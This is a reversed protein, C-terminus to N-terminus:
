KAIIGKEERNIRKIDKSNTNRIKYKNLNKNGFNYQVTLQIKPYNWNKHFDVALGSSNYHGIAQNTNFIDNCSLSIKWNKINKSIYADIWWQKSMEYVGFFLPSYYTFKLNFYWKSLLSLREEHQIYFAYFTKDYNKNNFYGRDFQKQLAFYNIGIWQTSKNLYPIPLVILGRIYKSTELNISKIQLNDDKFNIIEVIPNKKSSYSLEFIAARLFSYTLSSFHEKSMKLLPNGIRYTNGGTISKFPILDRFNQHIYNNKYIFKILHKKNIQKSLTVFPQVFYMLTDLKYNDFEIKRKEANLRIGVYLYYGSYKYDISSYISLDGENYKNNYETNNYETNNIEGSIGLVSTINETFSFNFKSVISYLNFKEDIQQQFISKKLLHQKKTQANIYDVNNTWSIKKNKYLYYINGLIQNYDSKKNLGILSTDNKVWLTNDQDINSTIKGLSVKIGLTNKKNILIDSGANIWYNHRPNLYENEKIKLDKNITTLNIDMTSNKKYKSVNTSIYNKSIGKNVNIRGSIQYSYENFYEGRSLFFGNVGDESKNKTKINLIAKVNGGYEAKPNDILEVLDIDNVSMTSLYNLLQETTMKAPSDDIYVTVDYMGYLSIKNQASINIGPIQSLGESVSGNMTSLNNKLDIIMKDNDYKIFPKHAAVVVDDLKKSINVYINGLFRTSDNIKISDNLINYKEGMYIASIKYSDTPIKIRFFGNFDSLTQFSIDKKNAFNLNVYAVDTSDNLNKIYGSVISNQGIVSLSYLCFILIFTKKM